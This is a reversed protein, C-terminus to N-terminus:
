QGEQPAKRERLEAPRVGGVWRVFNGWRPATNLDAGTVVLMHLGRFVDNFLAYRRVPLRISYSNM